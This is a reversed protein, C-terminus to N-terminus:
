VGQQLPAAQAANEQQQRIRAAHGGAAPGNINRSPEIEKAFYDQLYKYMNTKAFDGDYHERNDFQVGAFLAQKAVCIGSPDRLWEIPQVEVWCAEGPTPKHGNSLVFINDCPKAEVRIYKKGNHQYEIYEKASFPMKYANYEEGDFTYKKGTAQLKQTTFAKELKESVEEPAITQPYEGYEVVDVKSIERSPTAKNLGLADAVEKPLAPRAGYHRKYPYDYFWGGYYNVHRVFGDGGPSASWVFGTKQGDSTEAPMLLLEQGGGGGLVIALDSM